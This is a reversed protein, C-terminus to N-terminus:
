VTDLNLFKAETRAFHMYIILSLIASFFCWVSFFTSSYFYYTIALFLILLIGFKFVFRHSSLMCSGGTALLYIGIVIFSYFHPSHYAISNNVVHSTVPFKVIFYLLYLAVAIGLFGYLLELKWAVTSTRDPSCLFSNFRAM